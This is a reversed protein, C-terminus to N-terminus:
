LEFRYAKCPISMCSSPISYLVPDEAQTHDHALLLHILCDKLAKAQDETPHTCISFGPSIVRFTPIITMWTMIAVVTKGDESQLFVEFDRAERDPFEDEGDPDTKGEAELSTHHHANALPVYITFPTCELEVRLGKLLIELYPIEGTYPWYTVKIREKSAEVHALTVTQNHSPNTTPTSTIQPLKVWTDDEHSAKYTAGDEGERLTQDPLSTPPPLSTSM